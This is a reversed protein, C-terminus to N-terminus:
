AVVTLTANASYKVSAGGNVGVGVRFISGNPATNALVSLTATTVNSYAGANTLAAWASGNWREWAYTLTGGTPVSVANVTFTVVENASNSGSANAPRGSIRVGFDPVITDDSADSTINGGLAVLTEVQVRGARGGTGVTVLNWGAHAPKNKLAGGRAAQTETQSIGFVGVAQGQTFANPTTNGFLATRNTTNAAVKLSNVAFVPSNNAQDLRGWM